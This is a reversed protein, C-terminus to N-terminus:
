REGYTSYWYCNSRWEKRSNVSRETLVITANPLTPRTSGAATSADLLPMSASVAVFPAPLLPVLTTVLATLNLVGVASHQTPANSPTIASLTAILVNPSSTSAFADRPEFPLQFPPCVDPIPTSIQRRLDLLQSSPPLLPNGQENRTLLSGDPNNLFFLDLTSPPSNGDSLIWPTRHPYAM